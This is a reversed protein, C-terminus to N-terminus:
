YSGRFCELSYVLSNFIPLMHEGLQWFTPRVDKPTSRRTHSCRCVWSVYSPRLTLSRFLLPFYNSEFTSCNIELCLLTERYFIIAFKRNLHRFEFLTVTNQRNQVNREWSLSLSPSGHDTESRQWYNRISFWPWLMLECRIMFILFKDGVLYAEAFFIVFEGSILLM